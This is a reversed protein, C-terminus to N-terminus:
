AAQGTLSALEQRLREVREARIEDARGEEDARIALCEDIKDALTVGSLFSHQKESPTFYTASMAEWRGHLSFMLVESDHKLARVLIQEAAILTDRDAQTLTNM